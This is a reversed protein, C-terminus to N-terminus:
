WDAMEIITPPRVLRHDDDVVSVNWIPIGEYEYRGHGGHLHGCIVLRPRIRRIAALLAHSGLHEVGGSEPHDYRDGHGYPPQHTLLIDISGPIAAYLAALEAESKMFAWHQFRRSWPSAWITMSRGADGALPVATGADVVIQLATSTAAAPADDDFGCAQGCWDHNGWTLIRHTVPAGALWPRAHEDFWAKQRDPRDEALTTGFRDPCVDGAVLLLDGQPVEPLHGHQDSLAVIRM